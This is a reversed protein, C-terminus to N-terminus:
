KLISSQRVCDDVCNEISVRVRSARIRLANIPINLAEALKMRNTKNLGEEAMHYKAILDLSERPLRNLCHDLCELRREKETRELERKDSEGSNVAPNRSPPLDELGKLEPERWQRKFINLAVGHFYLYPDSVRLEVGENIKRAVQDITRDTYEEPNSCGRWQFFKTLRQRIREYKEGALERNTDLCALLTDLTEQTLIWEKKRLSMVLYYFNRIVFNSHRIIFDGVLFNRAVFLRFLFEPM